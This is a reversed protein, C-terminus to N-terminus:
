DTEPLSNIKSYTKGCKNCVYKNGKKTMVGNCFKADCPLGKTGDSFLLTKDKLEVAVQIIAKIPHLLGTIKNLM